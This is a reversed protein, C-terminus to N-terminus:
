GARSGRRRRGTPCRSSRGARPARGPGGDLGAPMDGPEGEFLEAHQDAPV